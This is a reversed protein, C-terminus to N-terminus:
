DDDADDLSVSRTLREDKSAVKTEEVVSAEVEEDLHSRNDSDWEEQVEHDFVAACCM